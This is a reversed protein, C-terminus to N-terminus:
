SKVEIAAMGWLNSASLTFSPTISGSGAQSGGAAAEGPSTGATTNFRQTQGGGATLTITPAGATTYMAMNIIISTALTGSLTVSATTSTATNTTFTGNPAQQFVNNLSIAGIILNGVDGSTTATITNAGTPPGLLRWLTITGNAVGPVEYNFTGILTLNISAITVSQMTINSVSGSSNSSAVFVYLARNSASAITIAATATTSIAATGSAATDFVVASTSHGGGGINNNFPQLPQWTNNTNGLFGLCLILLFTKKM